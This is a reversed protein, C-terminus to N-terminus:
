LQASWNTQVLVKASVERAIMAEGQLFVQNRRKAIENNLRLNRFHNTYKLSMEVQKKVFDQYYTINNVCPSIVVAANL